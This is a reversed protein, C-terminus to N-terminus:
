RSRVLEKALLGFARGRHSIADKEDSSLEAMARDHGEPEFVPDYGFGGAGRPAQLVRGACEGRVSWERGDPAAAAAVCVFRAGRAGTPVDALARLLHAVRGADDLGQDGYRASYAGPAGDLADVELGSDDAVALEGIRSAVARAKAIANSSYDGSEPPFVIAPWDELSCVDFTDDDLIARIEALKDPNQTAVVVRLRTEAVAM